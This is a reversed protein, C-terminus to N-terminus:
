LIFQTGLIIRHSDKQLDNQCFVYNLMLKVAQGKLFYNVGASYERKINNAVRKNPVYQDYRALLQVKPTVKYGVTTYFGEAHNTSLTHNGNYGNAAAYEFNAMFKKYEYGAYVGSVFYNQHKQGATIGGGLVMKGYKSNTKALPKLNAWGAFEAGPFFERFYTDSSYGGLDYDIFDYNGKIRLGVKRVNGFNRSIQSRAVFPIVTTAIGGEYGTPTRTNGLIVTHHPISKNAIYVDAPLTQMFKYGDLPDFRLRLQYFTESGRFKGNVGAHIATFKYDTDGGETLDMDAGARYYGFLHATELPGKELNKTLIEELLYYSSTTDSIEKARINQIKEQLTIEDKKDPIDEKVVQPVINDDINLFVEEIAMASTTSFILVCFFGLLYKM